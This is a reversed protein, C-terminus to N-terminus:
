NGGSWRWLIRLLLLCECLCGDSRSKQDRCWQRYLWFSRRLCKRQYGECLRLSQMITHGDGDLSGTFRTANNYSSNDGVPVWGTCPTGSPLEGNGTYAACGSAGEGWSARADINAGLKYHLRLNLNRDYHKSRYTIGRHMLKLEEYTTLMYPDAQTGSGSASIELEPWPLVDGCDPTNPNGDNASTNSAPPTIVECEAGEALWVGFPNNNNASNPAECAAQTTKSSDTCYAAVEAYKLRPLHTTVSFHWDSAEWGTVSTLAALRALPSWGCTGTCTGGGLGNTGGQYSAFYNTGTVTGGDLWGALGGSIFRNCTGGCSVSGTAYSNTVAIRSYGVLGGGFSNGSPSSVTVDGRAYSNQITTGSQSGGVLGGGHSNLMSSNAEVDGTAYSNVIKGGNLGGALGGASSYRTGSVTVDGTAYSNVITGYTVGM